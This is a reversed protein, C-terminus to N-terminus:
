DKKVKDAKLLNFLKFSTSRTISIAIYVFAFLSLTFIFVVDM